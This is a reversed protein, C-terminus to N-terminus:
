AVSCIEFKRLFTERRAGERTERLEKLMWGVPAVDRDMGTRVEIDYRCRRALNRM